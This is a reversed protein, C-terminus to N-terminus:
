RDLIRNLLLYDLGFMMPYLAQPRKGVVEVELLVDGKPLDFNGLSIRKWEVGTGYFDIPAIEKGNLRMKHIGYDRAFCFNGVVEYTGAEKVPIRLVLRNGPKNDIWWLQEGSSLGWFGSQKETKGGHQEVIALKEGEIAGAVPKPPEMKPIMLLARQVRVPSTSGPKAYWYATRDYAAKVDEWHWMELDFRLSRTFPIPDFIHWRHVNSQGFNAPGDCRNQGHYPRQFLIPSCWAYGYYDETGTGFTSPFTEGDVYVKEDGEGWWAPTPNAIHLNSGLWYGEGRANLLEMDRMPRTSAYEATWQAYLHYADRPPAKMEVKASTAVKVPVPGVNNLWIKANRQFPMPLRCVMWGDDTIQFPLTRTENVGPATAFFDGVPVEITREGDAEMELILNRMLNHTADPDEWEPAKIFTKTSMPVRVRFEAITGAQGLNLCLERSGPQVVSEAHGMTALGRPMAPEARALHEAATRMEKGARDLQRQDFTEVRTGSAYTRYNVHYYLGRTGEATVKLSKAYPFPFYLDTGQAAGYSFPDKFPAVKGTLFDAMPAVIRPTAEGDFYFRITGQPNASWVRVVAGPGKLDAMVQETRGSVTETRLFQGADGNAMPDSKPGPNSARDYSSAQAATFAPKPPRALYRMDWMQPLLTRVSVSEAAHACTAAFLAFGIAPTKMM